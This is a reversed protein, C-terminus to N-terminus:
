DDIYEDNPNLILNQPANQASPQQINSRQPGSVTNITNPPAHPPIYSLQPCAPPPRHTLPRPASSHRYTQPPPHQYCNPPQTFSVRLRPPYPYDPLPNTVSPITHHTSGVLPFIMNRHFTQVPELNTYPTPAFQFHELSLHLNFSQLVVPQSDETKM